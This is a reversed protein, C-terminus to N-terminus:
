FIALSRKYLPEAERDQGLSAHVHGLNNLAAGVDRHAPGRAKEADALTKQALTLAESFRGARELEIIKTTQASVSQALAPAALSASAALALGLLLQLHRGSKM